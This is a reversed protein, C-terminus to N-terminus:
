VERNDSRKVKEELENIRNVVQSELIRDYFDTTVKWKDKAAKRFLDMDDAKEAREKVKELEKRTKRYEVWLAGALGYDNLLTDTLEKRIARRDRYITRESVNFLEAMESNPRDGSEKLEEKLARRRQEKTLNKGNKAREKLEEAKM